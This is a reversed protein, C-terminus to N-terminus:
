CRKQKEHWADLISSLSVTGMLPIIYIFVILMNVEVTSFATLDTHFMLAYMVFVQFPIIALVKIAWQKFMDNETRAGVFASQLGIWTLLTLYVSISAGIYFFDAGQMGRTLPFIVYMAIMYQFAIAVITTVFLELGNTQSVINLLRMKAAQLVKM